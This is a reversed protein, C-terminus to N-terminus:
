EHIEDFEKGLLDCADYQENLVHIAAPGTVFVPVPQGLFHAIPRCSSSSGGHGLLPRIGLVSPASITRCWLPAPSVAIHDRRHGRQRFSLVM